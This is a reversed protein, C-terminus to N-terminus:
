WERRGEAVDDVVDRNTENGPSGPVREDLWDSYGKAGGDDRYKEYGEKAADQMQAEKSSPAGAQVVVDDDTLLVGGSIRFSNEDARVLNACQEDSIWSDHAEGSTQMSRLITGLDKQKSRNVAERFGPQYVLTNLQALEDAGLSM